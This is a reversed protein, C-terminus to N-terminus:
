RFPPPVVSTHPPTLASAPPPADTWGATVTADYSVVTGVPVALQPTGLIFPVASSRTDATGAIESYQGQIIRWGKPLCWTVIHGGRTVQVPHYGAPCTTSGLAAGSASPRAIGDPLKTSVSETALLAGTAPNIAVRLQHSDGPPPGELRYAGPMTVGYGTRGLPDTVRGELRIGPLTAIVRFAAARVQPTVPDRDLLDLCVAFILRSEAATGPKFPPFQQLWAVWSPEPIENTGPNVAMPDDNIAHRIAAELGATSGPLAQFQAATMFTFGFWLEPAPAMSAQQLESYTGHPLAPKGDAQWAAVAGPTPLSSTYGSPGAVRARERPSSPYWITQPVDQRAVAYPHENPGSVALKGSITSQRWYRGTAPGTLASNAARLLVEVAAPGAQLSTGSGGPGHGTPVQGVVLAATVGAAAAVAAAAPLTPWWRPRGALRRTLRYHGPPPAQALVRARAAEAVAASPPEPLLLDRVMELDDM